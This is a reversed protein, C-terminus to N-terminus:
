RLGFDYRLTIGVTHENINLTNDDYKSGGAYLGASFSARLYYRGGASYRIVTKLDGLRSYTAGIDWQIDDAFWGRFALTAGWGDFNESVLPTGANSIRLRTRQLSAGAVVDTAIGIPLHVGLGAELPQLQMAFHDDGQYLKASYKDSAYSGFAFLSSGVRTSAQVAVGSGNMLGGGQEADALHFYGQLYNYGIAAFANSSFLLAAAPLVALKRMRM